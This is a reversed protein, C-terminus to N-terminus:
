LSVANGLAMSSPPGSHFGFNADPATALQAEVAALEATRDEIPVGARAKALELYQEFHRSESTVLGAYLEHMAGNLAPLLLAFRECSRAEILAGAILLDVLREPEGHRLAARLGEAYRTAPVRRYAIGMSAMLRQVQEFHRLEERALRAMRRVLPPWDPYKFLLSVATSAAKKECNAHDLLLAPLDEVARAVWAPPTPVLLFGGIAPPVSNLTQATM